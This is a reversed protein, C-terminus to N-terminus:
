REGASITAGYQPAGKAADHIAQPMEQSTERLKLVRM